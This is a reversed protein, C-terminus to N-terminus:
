HEADALAVQKQLEQVLKQYGEDRVAAQIRTSVAQAISTGDVKADVIQFRAGRRAVEYDVPMQGGGGANTITTRVVETSAMKDSGVFNVKVQSLMAAARPFGIKELSETFVSVFHRREAASLKDWQPGLAQKALLDLALASDISDLVKRQAGPHGKTTPLSRMSDIAGRVVAEAPSAAETTLAIMMVLVACWSAVAAMSNVRRYHLDEFEEIADSNASPPENYLPLPAAPLSSAIGFGDAM